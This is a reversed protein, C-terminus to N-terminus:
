LSSHAALLALLLLLLLLYHGWNCAPVTCIYV